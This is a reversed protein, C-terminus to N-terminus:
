FKLGILIRFTSVDITRDQPKTDSVNDYTVSGFNYQASFVAIRYRLSLSVENQLFTVGYKTLLADSINGWEGYYYCFNANLKYSIDIMLKDVPNITFVPGFKQGGFYYYHQAVKEKEVPQTSNFSFTLFTADIGARLRNNAFAPGIYILYGLDLAAGIKAPLYVLPIIDPTETSTTYFTSGTAYTGIPFVPGFKLYFGGRISASNVIKQIQQPQIPQPEQAISAIPLVIALTILFALYRKM